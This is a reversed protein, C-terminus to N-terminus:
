SCYAKGSTPSSISITLNNNDVYTVDALFERDLSDVAVVNPRYGLGHAVNWTASPVAQNHTYYTALPLTAIKLDTYNASDNYTGDHVRQELDEIAEATLPTSPDGQGTVPDYNRWDKPIFAM